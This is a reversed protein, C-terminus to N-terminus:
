EDKVIGLIVMYGSGLYVIAFIIVYTVWFVMDVNSKINIVNNTVEDLLLILSPSLNFVSSLEECDGTGTRPYTIVEFDDVESKVTFEADLHVTHWIDLDSKSNLVWIAASIVAGASSSTSSSGVLWRSM